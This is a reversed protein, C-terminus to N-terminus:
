MNRTNYFFNQYFYGLISNSLIYLTTIFTCVYWFYLTLMHFFVCDNLTVTNWLEACVYFRMFHLAQASSRSILYLGCMSYLIALAGSTGIRVSPRINGTLKSPLM